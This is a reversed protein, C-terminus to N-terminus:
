QNEDETEVATAGEEEEKVVALAPTSAEAGSSSGVKDNGATSLAAVVDATTKRTNMGKAEDRWSQSWDKEGAEFEDQFSQPLMPASGSNNLPSMAPSLPLALPPTPTPPTATPTRSSSDTTGVAAKARATDLSPVGAAGRSSSTGSRGSTVLGIPLSPLSSMSPDQQRPERVVSAITSDGGESGEDAFGTREGHEKVWRGFGDDSSTTSPEEHVGEKSESVGGAGRAEAEGEPRETEVGPVAAVSPVEGLQDKSLSSSSSQLSLLTKRGASGGRVLSPPPSPFPTATGTQPGAEETAPSAPSTPLPPAPQTTTTTASAPPPPVSLVSAGAFDKSEEGFIMQKLHPEKPKGSPHVQQKGGKDAAAAPAAPAAALADKASRESAPAQVEEEEEGEAESAFEDDGQNYLSSSSATSAQKAVESRNSMASPPLLSTTSSSSSAPEEQKGSTTAAAEKLKSEAGESGQQKEEQKSELEETATRATTKERLSLTLLGHRVQELLGAAEAPLRLFQPQQPQNTNNGGEEKKEQQGKNADALLALVATVTGALSTLSPTGGESRGSVTFEEGGGIGGGGGGGAGTLQLQKLLYQQLLLQQHYLSDAEELGVAPHGQSDFLPLYQGPVANLLSPYSLAPGISSGEGRSGSRGSTVPTLLHHAYSANGTLGSHFSASPEVFSSASGASSM